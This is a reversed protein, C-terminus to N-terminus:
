STAATATVFFARLRGSRLALLLLERLRQRRSTEVPATKLLQVAAFKVRIEPERKLLHLLIPIAAALAGLLFLPSLLSM